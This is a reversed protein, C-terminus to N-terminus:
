TGEQVAVGELAATLEAVFQQAAAKMDEGGVILKDIHVMIGGGSAKASGGNAAPPAVMSEMAASAEPAGDDVGGAFGAATQGGIDEFVKSPSNIDLAEKAADIASTAVNTIASVVKSAGAKIGGVIGSVIASGLSVAATVASSVYGWIAAGIVGLSAGFDSVSDILGSIADSITQFASTSAVYAWAEGVKGILWPLKYLGLTAVTLFRDFSGALFNVKGILPIDFTLAQELAKVDNKLKLCFISSRLFARILTNMIMPAQNILPQLMESALQRMLQGSATTEDFMDVLQKFAALVPEINLNAFIGAINAQLRLSQQELGLMRQKVIGGFKTDMEAALAKASKKGDKMSEILASTGSTDGLAAEQIAIARLADPMDKAAVKAAHLERVIERQRDAALGTERGVNKMAGGLEDGAGVQIQLAQTLLRSDRAANASAIAFKVVAAAAAVVLVTIAVVAVGAVALAAGGAGLAGKLKGWAESYEEVMDGAGQLPGGLKKIGGATGEVDLKKSAAAAKEEAAKLGEYQKALGGVVGQQKKMSATAAENAVKLERQRDELKDLVTALQWFKSTDGAEMAKQMKARTATISTGVRELGKASSTVQKEFQAYSGMASKLSQETKQLETVPNDGRMRQEIEILFETSM